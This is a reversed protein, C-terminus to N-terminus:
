VASSWVRPFTHVPFSFVTGPARHCLASVVTAVTSENAPAELYATKLDALLETCRDYATKAQPSNCALLGALTLYYRSYSAFIFRQDLLWNLRKRESAHAVRFATVEPLGSGARYAELLERLLERDEEEIGERQMMEGM